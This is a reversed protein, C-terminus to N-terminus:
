GGGLDVEFIQGSSKRVGLRAGLRLWKLFFSMGRSKRQRGRRRRRRSDERERLEEESM